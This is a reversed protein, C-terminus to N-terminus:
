ESANKGRKRAKNKIRDLFGPAKEVEQIVTKGYEDKKLLLRGKDNALVADIVATMGREEEITLRTDAEAAFAFNFSMSHDYCGKTKDRAIMQLLVKRGSEGEELHFVIKAEDATPIEVAQIVWSDFYAEGPAIPKILDLIKRTIEEM